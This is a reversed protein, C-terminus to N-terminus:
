VLHNETKKNQKKLPKITAASLKKIFVDMLLIYQCGFLTRVTEFWLPRMDTTLRPLNPPYYIVVDCWPRLRATSM